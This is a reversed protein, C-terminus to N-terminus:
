KKFKNFISLKKRIVSQTENTIDKQTKISGVKCVFSSMENFFCDFEQYYNRYNSGNTRIRVRTANNLNRNSVKKDRVISVTIENENFQLKLINDNGSDSHWIINKSQLDVFDKPLSSYEDKEADNLVYKGVILRMLREFIIYSQWEEQNSSYFSISLEVDNFSNFWIDGDLSKEISFKKGNKEITISSYDMKIFFINDMVEGLWSSIIHCFVKPTLFKCNIKKLEM